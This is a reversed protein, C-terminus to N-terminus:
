PAAGARRLFLVGSFTLATDLAAALRSRQAALANAAERLRLYHVPPRQLQLVLWEGERDQVLRRLQALQEEDLECQPRLRALLAQPAHDFELAQDQAGVSAHQSTWTPLPLAFPRPSELRGSVFAGAPIQGRVQGYAQAQVRLTDVRIPRETFRVRSRDPLIDGQEGYVLTRGQWAILFKTASGDLILAEGEAPQRSIRWRGKFDLMSETAAERYDTYAMDQTALLYRIARWTGGMKSIPFVLILLGLFVLCFVREGLSGTRVRYRPSGPIVCIAPHPHFLPTGSKTMSDALLHSAYGILLAAYWAGRYFCLPVGVLGLGAMCMLGHTVTRHGWRRELPISVFPLLRGLASNPTDLDPLLSGIMAFGVAPLDKHLSLSFLSFLSSATFLGFTMHTPATM